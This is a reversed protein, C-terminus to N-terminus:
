LPLLRSFLFNSHSFQLPSIWNVQWDSQKRDAVEPFDICLDIHLYTTLYSGNKHQEIFASFHFSVWFLLCQPLYLLWTFPAPLQDFPCIFLIVETSKATLTFWFLLCYRLVKGFSLCWTIARAYGPITEM